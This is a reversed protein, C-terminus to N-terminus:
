RRSLELSYQSRVAETIDTNSGLGTASNATLRLKWTDTVWESKYATTGSPTPAMSATWGQPPLVNEYFDMVQKPTNGRIEFSQTTVGDKESLSGVPDSLPARPVQDFRGEFALPVVEGRDGAPAGDSGCGGLGVVVLLLLAGITATCRLRAHSHRLQRQQEM